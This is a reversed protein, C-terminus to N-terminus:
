CELSVELRFNPQGVNVNGKSSWYVDKGSFRDFCGSNLTSRENAAKEVMGLENTVFLLVTNYPIWQVLRHSRPPLPHRFM